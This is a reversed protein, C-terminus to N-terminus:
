RACFYCAGAAFGSTIPCGAGTGGATDVFKSSQDSRGNRAEPQFCTYVDTTNTVMNLSIAGTGGGVSAPIAGVFTQKLEGAATLTAVVTTTLSRIDAIGTGATGWPFSGVVSYYRNLSNTFETAVQRRNSDRGRKVQDLPDLAALLGAALIGLIGIVILLEILTFGKQTHSIHKSLIM